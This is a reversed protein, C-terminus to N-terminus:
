HCECVKLADAGSTLECLRKVDVRVFKENFQRKEQPAALGRAAAAARSGAACQRVAPSCSGGGFAPQVAPRCATHPSESRAAAGPQSVVKNSFERSRVKDSRGAVSHYKCYEIM